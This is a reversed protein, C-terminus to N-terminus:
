RLTLRANVISNRNAEILGSTRLLNEIETFKTYSSAGQSYVITIVDVKESIINGGRELDPSLETSNLLRKSALVTAQKIASPTGTVADGESDFADDRPWELSQTSSSRDGVFTYTTNIYLTARNLYREKSSDALADWLLWSTEDFFSDAYTNAYALSVYSTSDVKGTGDDPLFSM